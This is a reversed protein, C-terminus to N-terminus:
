AFGFLDLCFPSKKEIENMLIEINKYTFNCYSSMCKDNCFISICWSDYVIETQLKDSHDWIDNVLSIIRDSTERDLEVEEKEEIEFFFDQSSIYDSLLPTLTECNRKGKYAVMNCDQICYYYSIETGDSYFIISLISNQTFFLNSKKPFLFSLCLGFILTATLFICFVKKISRSNL